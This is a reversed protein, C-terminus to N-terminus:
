HAYLIFPPYWFLELYQLWISVLARSHRHSDTPFREIAQSLAKLADNDSDHENSAGSHASFAAWWSEPHSLHTLGLM